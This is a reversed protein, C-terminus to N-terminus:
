LVRKKSNPILRYKDAEAKVEYDGAEIKIISQDKSISLGEKIMFSSEFFQVNLVNANNKSKPVEISLVQNNRSDVVLIANSQEASSRSVSCLGRGTCNYGRGWNVTVSELNIDNDHIKEQVNLCSLIISTVLILYNLNKM